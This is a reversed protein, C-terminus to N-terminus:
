RNRLLPSMGEGGTVASRLREDRKVKISHPLVKPPYSGLDTNGLNRRPVDIRRQLLKILGKPHGTGFSCGLLDDGCSQRTAFM